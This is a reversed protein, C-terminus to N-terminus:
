VAVAYGAVSRNSFAAIFVAEGFRRNGPNEWVVPHRHAPLFAGGKKGFTLITIKEVYRNYLVELLGCDICKSLNESLCCFTM